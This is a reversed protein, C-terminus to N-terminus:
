KVRVQAGVLNVISISQNSPKRMETEARVFTLSSLGTATGSFTLNILAGTGSVGAPDGEVVSLNIECRGAVNDIDYWSLISGGNGTLFTSEDWSDLTIVDPDFTFVAKVMMLNTVDEAVLSLDIDGTTGGELYPPSFRLSAGQVANVHFNINPPTDEILNAILTDYAARVHVTHQGEDLPGFTRSTADSWASWGENELRSQFAVVGTNGEWTVTVSATTHTSGESPSLITTSPSVFVPNDPDPDIPNDIPPDIPPETITSVLMDCAPLILISAALALAVLCLSIASFRGGTLRIFRFPKKGSRRAM